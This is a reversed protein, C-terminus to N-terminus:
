VITGYRLGLAALWRRYAVATKDSRVHLERGVTLPLRKPRQSEVIPVDQGIILATFAQVEEEGYLVDHNSALLVWGIGREPEVPTVTLMIAETAPAGLRNTLGVDKVLRATLPRPVSYEYGVHAGSAAMTNTPQPQWVRVNRVSLGDEGVDVDYDEIETHEESGLVGAHVFPFHSVDIFNEIARPGSTEYAFAGGFFLHHTGVDIEPFPPIDHAPEGLCAWVLGYREQARFTTARARPSPKQREHAPYRVCVGDAQYEWGHYPCALRGDTVKGLSLRVGRHACRDEFARLGDPSRWLVVDVGLLRVPHPRDAVDASRAVPHWEAALVADDTMPPETTSM